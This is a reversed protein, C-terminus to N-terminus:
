IQYQLRNLYKNTENRVLLLIVNKQKTLEDEFEEFNIGKDIMTQYLKELKNELNKIKDRLVINNINTKSGNNNKNSFNNFRNNLKSLSEDLEILKKNITELNINNIGKGKSILQISSAKLLSIDLILKRIIQEHANIDDNLGSVDKEASNLINKTEDILVVIGNELKKIKDNLEKIKIENINEISKKLLEIEEKLGNILETHNGYNLKMKEKIKNLNLGILEENANNLKIQRDLNEILINHNQYHETTKNKLNEIEKNKSEQTNRLENVQKGLNEILQNHNQYNKTTKDQLREISNDKNNILNQLKRISSENKINNQYAIPLISTVYALTQADTILSSKTLHNNEYLYKLHNYNKKLNEILKNFKDVLIKNSNENINLEVYNIKLNELEKEEEDLQNINFQLLDEREKNEEIIQKDIEKKEEEGVGGILTNSKDFNFKLKLYKKKYRSYNDFDNM